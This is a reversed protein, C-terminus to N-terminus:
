MPKCSDAYPLTSISSLGLRRVTFLALVSGTLKGNKAEGKGRCSDMRMSEVLPLAAAAKQM